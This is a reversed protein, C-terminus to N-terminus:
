AGTARGRRSPAQREEQVLQLLSEVAVRLDRVEQRLDAMESQTPARQNSMDVREAEGDHLELGLVPAVAPLAATPIEGQEKWRRWTKESVPIQRAIRENSLGKAAQLQQIRETGIHTRAAVVPIRSKLELYIDSM